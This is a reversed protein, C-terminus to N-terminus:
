KCNNHFNSVGRGWTTCYMRLRDIKGRGFGSHQGRGGERLVEPYGAAQQGYRRTQQKERNNERTQPERQPRVVEAGKYGNPWQILRPRARQDGSCLPM